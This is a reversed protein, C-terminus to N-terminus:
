RILLNIHIHAAFGTVFTLQCLYIRSCYICSSLHIRYNAQREAAARQELFGVMKWQKRIDFRIETAYARM